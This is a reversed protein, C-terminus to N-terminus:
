LLNGNSHRFAPIDSVDKVKHFLLNM